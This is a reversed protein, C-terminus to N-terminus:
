RVATARGTGPGRRSMGSTPTAAVRLCPADGAKDAGKTGDAYPAGESSKAYELGHPHMSASFPTNNKFVVRVTDGVEAQIVPGLTGLHQWAAPRAQRHKFTADTYGQYPSKEYTRGIRNSGEKVYTNEEDGFPKGTIQIATSPAYDWAVTNAAIYSRRTKTGCSATSSTKEASGTQVGKTGSSSCGAILISFRQALSM